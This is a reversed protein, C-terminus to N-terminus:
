NARWVANSSATGARLLPRLKRMVIGPLTAASRIGTVKIDGIEVSQITGTVDLLGDNNLLHYALECVAYNVRRLAATASLPLMAGVLPERYTGSRPFAYLQDAEVATGSFELDSILSSATTLAELKQQVTAETWAAVDIRTSFFADADSQTIMSM